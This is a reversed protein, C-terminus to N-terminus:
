LRDPDGTDLAPHSSKLEGTRVQLNHPSPMTPPGLMLRQRRAPAHRSLVAALREERALTTGSKCIYFM